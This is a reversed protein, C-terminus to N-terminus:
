QPSTSPPPTRPPILLIQPILRIQPLCNYWQLRRIHEHFAPEVQSLDVRDTPWLQCEGGNALVDYDVLCSEMQDIGLLDSEQCVRESVYFPAVARGGRIEFPSINCKMRGGFGCSQKYSCMGCPRSTKLVSNMYDFFSNLAQEYRSKVFKFLWHQQCIPSIQSLYPTQFSWNKFMKPFTLNKNKTKRLKKIVGCNCM